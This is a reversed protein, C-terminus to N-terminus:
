LASLPQLASVFTARWCGFARAPSWVSSSSPAHHCSFVPLGAGSLDRGGLAGDRGGSCFPLWARSVAITNWANEKMGARTTRTRGYLAGADGGAKGDMERGATAPVYARRSIDGASPPLLVTRAPPRLTPTAAYWCLCTRRGAREASHRADEDCNTVCRRSHAANVHAKFFYHCFTTSPM